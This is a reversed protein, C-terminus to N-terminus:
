CMFKHVLLFRFSWRIQTAVYTWRRCFFVSIDSSSSSGRMFNGSRPIVNTHKHKAQPSSLASPFTWSSNRGTSVAYAQWIDLSAVALLWVLFTLFCFLQKWKKQTALGRRTLWACTHIYIASTVAWTTGVAPLIGGGQVWCKLWLGAFGWAVRAKFETCM